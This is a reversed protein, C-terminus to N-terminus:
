LRKLQSKMGNLEQVQTELWSEGGLELFEKHVTEYKELDKRLKKQAKEPLPNGEADATPFGLADYASYLKESGRFFETPPARFKLWKDILKQKTVVQNELKKCRDAEAFRAREEAERRLQHPDDMKWTTAAGGPKDEIRIGAPILWEDRIKDCLPIFAPAQNVAKAVNRVEDRFRVLADVAPVLRSAEGIGEASEFGLNDTAPVVGFIQLIRTTYRGIKRLLTGSPRLGTLLYQNTEAVLEM